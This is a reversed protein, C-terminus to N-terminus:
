FRFRSAHPLIFVYAYNETMFQNELTKEKKKVFVDACVYM